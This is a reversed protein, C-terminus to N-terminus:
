LSRKTPVGPERESGPRASGAIFRGRASSWAWGRASVRQTKGGPDRGRLHAPLHPQLRLRLRLRPWARSPPRGACPLRHRSAPIRPDRHGLPNRPCGARSRESRRTHMRLAPDSLPPAPFPAWPPALACLPLLPLGPTWPMCGRARVPFDPNQRAHSGHARRLSARPQAPDAGASQAAGARGCSPARESGGLTQGLGADRGAAVLGARWRRRRAPAGSLKPAM